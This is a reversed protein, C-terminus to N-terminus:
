NKQLKWFSYAIILKSVSEIINHIFWMENKVLEQLFNFLLFSSCNYFLISFNLTQLFNSDFKSSKNNTLLVFYVLSWIIFIFNVFQFSNILLSNGKQEIALIFVFVISGILVLYNLLVVKRKLYFIGISAFSIIIFTNHVWHNNLENIRTYIIICTALVSSMLYILIEFHRWAKKYFFVVVPMTGALLQLILSFVSLIM